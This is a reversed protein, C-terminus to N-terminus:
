RRIRALRWLWAHRATERRCAALFGALQGDDLPGACDRALDAFETGPIVADLLGEKVLSRYLRRLQALRAAPPLPPGFGARDLDVVRVHWADPSREAILNRANLDAHTLGADHCRRLAAAAAALLAQRVDGAGAVVPLCVTLNAANPNWWSWAELEWRGDARRTGTVGELAVVPLGLGEARASVALEALAREPGSFGRGRLPGLWGGHAYPRVFVRRASGPLPLHLPAARGGGAPRADSRAALEAFPHRMLELWGPEAGLRAVVLREGAPDRREFGGPLPQATM